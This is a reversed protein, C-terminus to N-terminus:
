NWNKDLYIGEKYKSGKKDDYGIRGFIIEM